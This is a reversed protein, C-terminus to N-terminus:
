STIELLSQLIEWLSILYSWSDLPSWSELICTSLVVGRREYLTEWVVDYM